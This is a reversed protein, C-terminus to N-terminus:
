APFDATLMRMADRTFRNQTSVIAKCAKAMNKATGQHSTAAATLKPELLQRETTKQTHFADFQSLTSLQNNKEINSYGSLTSAIGAALSGALGIYKTFQSNTDLAGIFAAPGYNYLQRAASGVGGVIGVLGSLLSVAATLTPNWGYSSMLSSVAGGAGSVILSGGTWLDGSAALGVGALTTVANLTYNAIRTRSEWTEITKKTDLLQNEVKRLEESKKTINKGVQEYRLMAPEATSQVYQQMNDMMRAFIIATPIIESEKSNYHPELDPKSPKIVTNERGTNFRVEDVSSLPRVKSSATSYISTDIM